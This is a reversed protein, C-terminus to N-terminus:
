PWLTSLRCLIQRRNAPQDAAEWNKFDPQNSFRSACDMERRGVRRELKSHIGYRYYLDYADEHHVIHVTSRVDPQCQQPTRRNPSVVAPEDARRYDVPRNAEIGGAHTRDLIHGNWSPRTHRDSLSVGPRPGLYHRVT